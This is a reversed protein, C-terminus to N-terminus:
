REFGADPEADDHALSVGAVLALTEATSAIAAMLLNAHEEGWRRIADATLDATLKETLASHSLANKLQDTM